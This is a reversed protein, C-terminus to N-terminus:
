WFWWRLKPFVPWPKNLGDTM